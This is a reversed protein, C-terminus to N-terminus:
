EHDGEEDVVGRGESGKQERWYNAFDAVVSEANVHGADDVYLRSWAEEGLVGEVVLLFNDVMSVVEPVAKYHSLIARRALNRYTYPSDEGGSYARWIEFDRLLANLTLIDEADNFGFQRHWYGTGEVDEAEDIYDGIAEAGYEGWHRALFLLCYYRFFDSGEDAELEIAEGLHPVISLYTLVNQHHWTISSAPGITRVIAAEADSLTGLLRKAERPLNSAVTTLTKAAEERTVESARVSVHVEEVYPQRTFFVFKSM